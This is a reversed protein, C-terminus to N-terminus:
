DSDSFTKKRRKGYKQKSWDEDTSDDSAFSNDQNKKSNSNSSASDKKSAPPKRGRSSTSRRGVTATTEDEAALAFLDAFHKKQSDTSHSFAQQLSRQMENQVYLGTGTGNGHRCSRRFHELHHLIQESSPTCNQLPSSKLPRKRKNPSSSPYKSTLLNAIIESLKGEYEECWCRLVSIVFADAKNKSDRSLLCKVLDTSPKENKLLLLIYTLAEAHQSSDLEPIIDQFSEFPVDHAQLLQWFCFQEFTEYELSERVVDIIDDSSFMNLKGQAVNFIIDRLNTADIAGIVLALIETNNLMINKFEKYIDPLLWFFMQSSNKELVDLDQKLQDELNSDILMCYHKYVSAKFSAASNEKRRAQLKAHVKLFHLLLYGTSPIQQSTTVLLSGVQNKSKEESQYLLKFMHFIPNSVSESLSEDSKSEPFVSRNALTQKLTTVIRDLVYAEQEANLTVTNMGSIVLEFDETKKSENFSDLVQSLEDPISQVLPKELKIVKSLPLDDDDSHDDKFGAATKTEDEEDSFKPEDGITTCNIQENNTSWNDESYSANIFQNEEESPLMKLPSVLNSSSSTNSFFERFNERLMTKLERDLKTSELLPVLNPIVQKELIIRLSNYIGARVLEECKPYFNKMIRCLFDLLTCSVLPHNKISHYMVLIGPEINMINDKLPDFFLWDYFLSLKANAQAVANTCSTLLWGIVAWRPIIDSCLMDNTPHIASIIFRILDSRLSQSEPTTFYKEQFWDQYRKQNGFKVNSILFHLKREVDPTLRCRLFRRSTKIQMLQLVGNFTPCLSKPNYLITKWLAEVEPIRAVNQLLRVFERGLPMVDTFRERILSTIFTVEKNHLHAFQPSHHDELLRLFTYVVTGVLFQDKELWSRYEIFIDLLGEILTVNKASIDGGCAQRLINWVLNDVNLVQNKILERLFWLLQKRPTDNLRQYKEAALMALNTTVFAFGDHSLITLDSYAKTAVSPDTLIAYMLALTIDEQSKEKGVSTTLMEHLDKENTGSVVDEYLRFAREYKEEFEDKLDVITQIFLKSKATEM